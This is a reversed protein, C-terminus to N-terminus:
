CCDSWRVGVKVDVKFTYSHGEIEFPREMCETMLAAVAFCADENCEIDIADYQQFMLLATPDVDHLRRAVEPLCINMVDTATAQIPYNVVETIPPPAPYVRRRDMIRSASYGCKSMRDMEADWYALTGKRLVKWREHQMKIQAYKAARDEELAKSYVQPTGAGYQAALEIVKQGKYASKKLHNTPDVCLGQCECKVLHKPLGFMEKAAHVYVNGSRLATGLFEDGSVAYNVWMEIQQWDAHVWLRGKPAAYMSRLEQPVNLLNPESCSVRGTDTGCSNIGARLRGDRGIAHLIDDSKVFTARAKRPQQASWYVEIIRALEPPTDPHILVQRLADETVKIAKGSKTWM